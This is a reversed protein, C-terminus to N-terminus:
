NLAQPEPCPSYEMHFGFGYAAARVKYLDVTHGLPLSTVVIHWKKKMELICM